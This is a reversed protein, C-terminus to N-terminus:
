GPSLVRQPPCANFQAKFEARSKLEIFKIKDIANIARMQGGTLKDRLKLAWRYKVRVVSNDTGLYHIWRKVFLPLWRQPWMIKEIDIIRKEIKLKNFIQNQNHHLSFYQM